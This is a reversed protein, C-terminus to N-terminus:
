KHSEGMKRLFTCSSGRLTIWPMSTIASAQHPHSNLHHALVVAALLERAHKQWKCCMMRPMCSGEQMWLDLPAAFGATYRPPWAINTALCCSTISILCASKRFSALHLLLGQLLSLCEREQQQAAM